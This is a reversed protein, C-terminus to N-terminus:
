CSMCVTYEEVTGKVDSLFILRLDKSGSERHKDSIPMLVLLASFYFVFAVNSRIYNLGDRTCFKGRRTNIGYLQHLCPPHSSSSSSPPVELRMARIYLGM